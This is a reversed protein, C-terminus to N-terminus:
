DWGLVNTLKKKPFSKVLFATESPFLAIFLVFNLNCFRGQSLCVSLCASPGSCLLFITIHRYHRQEIRGHVRARIKCALFNSCLCYCCLCINKKRNKRRRKLQKIIPRWFLNKFPTSHAPSLCHVKSKEALFCLATKSLALCFCGVLLFM